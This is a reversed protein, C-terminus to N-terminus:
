KKKKRKKNREEELIEEKRKLYYKQIETEILLKKLKDKTMNDYDRNLMEELYLKSDKDKIEM